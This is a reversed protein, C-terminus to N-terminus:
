EVTLCGTCVGRGGDPNTVTATRLGVAATSTALVSLDIRGPIVATVSSTVGTGSFAVKAGTVFGSGHVSTAVSSGPLVTNPQLGTPAPKASITFCGSCSIKSGNTRTIAVARDGVTATSGVNVKAVLKTSSSIAVSQTTVGSGFSVKTGSSFGSGYVTVSRSVAGQGATSPSACVTGAPAAKISIAKPATTLPVATATVNSVVVTSPAYRLTATGATCGARFTSNSVLVDGSVGVGTIGSVFMTRGGGGSNFFILPLQSGTNNARLFAVNSTPYTLDVEAANITDGTVVVHASEVFKTGAVVSTPGVLSLAASATAANAIGPSIVAATLVACGTGIAGITRRFTFHM